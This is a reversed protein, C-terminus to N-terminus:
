KTIYFLERLDSQLVDRSICTLFLNQLDNQNAQFLDEGNGWLLFNIGKNEKEMRVFLYTIFKIENKQFEENQGPYDFQERVYFFSNHQNILSCIKKYENPIYYNKLLKSEKQNCIAMNEFFSEILLENKPFIIFKYLQNKIVLLVGQNDKVFVFQRLNENKKTLTSAYITIDPFTAWNILQYITEDIEYEDISKKQVINKELLNKESSNIEEHIEIETMKGFPNFQWKVQGFGLLGLLYFFEGRSINIEFKGIENNM